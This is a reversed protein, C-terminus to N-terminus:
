LIVACYLKTDTGVLNSLFLSFLLLLNCCVRPYEKVTLSIHAALSADIQVGVEVPQNGDV